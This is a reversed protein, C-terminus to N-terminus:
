ASRSFCTTCVVGMRQVVLQGINPVTGLRMRAAYVQQAIGRKGGISGLPSVLSAIGGPLRLSLNGLVMADAQANALDAQVAAIEGTQADLWTNLQAAKVIQFLLFTPDTNQDNIYRAGDDQNFVDPTFPPSALGLPDHRNVPDNGCYAYLNFGGEERLPDRSLFRGLRPDYHALASSVFQLILVALFLWRLTTPKM